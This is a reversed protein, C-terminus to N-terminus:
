SNFNRLQKEVGRAVVDFFEAIRLVGEAGSKLKAKVSRGTPDSTRGIQRRFRDATDAAVRLHESQIRLNKLWLMGETRGIISQTVTKSKM